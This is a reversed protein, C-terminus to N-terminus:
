EVRKLAKSQLKLAQEVPYGTISGNEVLFDGLKVPENSKAENNQVPSSSKPQVLEIVLDDLVLRDIESIRTLDQRIVDLPQNPIFVAKFHHVPQSTEIQEQTPTMEQITGSSQLALM